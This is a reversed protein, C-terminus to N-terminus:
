STADTQGTCMCATRAAGWLWPSPSLSAGPHCPAAAVAVADHSGCRLECLPKQTLGGSPLPAGLGGTPASSGGEFPWVSLMKGFFIGAGAFVLVWVGTAPGGRPTPWVWGGMGLGSRGWLPPGGSNSLRRSMLLGVASVATPPTPWLHPLPVSPSPALLPISSRGNFVWGLCFFHGGFVFM